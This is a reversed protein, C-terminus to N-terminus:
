RQGACAGPHFRGDGDKRTVPLFVKRRRQSRRCEVEASGATAVAYGLGLRWKIKPGVLRHMWYLWLCVVPAAVHAWYVVSRAGPQKLDFGGVRVLLLGSILVVISAIFLAYGVRIARKNKRNKTNAIHVGGFVLWPVVLLLGLVLHGLFMWHYFWNEYTQGTWWDLGTVSALYVSNAGLVAVLAFAFWMLIRLRPGVAPIPGRPRPVGEGAASAVVTSM